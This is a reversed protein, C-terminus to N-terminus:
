ELMYDMMTEYLHLQYDLIDGFTIEANSSPNGFSGHSCEFTFALCGSTHHLASTLNFSTRAPFERDEVAPNSFVNDPYCPLKDSRYRRNVMRSLEQVEEKMFWPLYNVPLIRSVLEFSHLSVALDPAEDRALDLIARTEEAMPDFFEDHMPNIGDDNFYAGLIGVDGKMPHVSKAGPWGWSSGDKRTGQGYKTMIPTPLGLFTDYPCRRRGDPNGCPVIIIRCREMKKKLLPWEKGRYDKGTEAIHILNVLGVIGEMEQGHVPGLFFIVPKTSSDRGTYFTRDRAGIASNYNAQSRRGEKEGYYVAYVPLGGPSRAIVKVEGKRILSVEEEIAVLDSRFFAPIDTRNAPDGAEINVQSSLLASHCLIMMGLSLFVNFKIM